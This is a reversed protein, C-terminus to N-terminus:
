DVNDHLFSNNSRLQIDENSDESLTTRSVKKQIPKDNLSVGQRKYAPEKEIEDINSLNNQFKYNFDKLKRRREDARQKLLEEIPSDMPDTEEVQQPATKITRKEFILEDEIIKPEFEEAKSKAGTLQNELEMYDDLSYRTEGEKSYELVPIVEVHGNVDMDKVEDDLNFTIVNANEEENKTDNLPMDFSIAFQDEDKKTSIVEPEVVEIDNINDKAEFIVFDDESVNEAVVEEYFVNFNRIYNTTPILDLGDGEEFEFKAKPQQSVEEEQDEVLQHVINQPTLNQVAKQEDELTHIIKKSETNVIDDQQDINFGTAIVTVAIAEGLSDDEGVGMIINAGHGAEGQIHDNIEGIEDITIEQAGSVILLLVNKAGSIKNDNLLPSDLAKMIAENARSSGSAMASGMIATGSNSLVTKADRLDINQTYHHTIVEAIGRAATALVEDAKSFGAKFGLNGYVERLKNNNIVILSDVNARLKEIGKQAQDCRMKGEFQFPMTVIGVTLVDMEKAQKAIVPAAGTGTGGGMGATIFIMKTTNDLMSKIDEMSEIAAQEGVEPNAGAGLGETLSVGLQIKNPVPSNDLAQSDTNCIVFDVGNIGAQFMHNIANSGGGGVGIVKIVNSQNKPLDFAISDMETNKSM